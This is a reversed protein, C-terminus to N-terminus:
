RWEEHREKLRDSQAVKGPSVVGRWGAGEVRQRGSKLVGGEAKHKGVSSKPFQSMFVLCSADQAM